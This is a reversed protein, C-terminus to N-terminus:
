SPIVRGIVKLITMLSASYREDQLLPKIRTQEKPSNIPHRSIIGGQSMPLVTVRILLPLLEAGKKIFGM